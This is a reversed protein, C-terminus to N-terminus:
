ERRLPRAGSESQLDSDEFIAMTKGFPRSESVPNEVNISFGGAAVWVSRELRYKARAQSLTDRLEAPGSFGLIPATVFHLGACQRMRYKEPSDFEDDPCGLYYGLTVDTGIDTVIVSGAPVSGLFDIAEHMASLHHRYREVTFTPEPSLINWAFIAPVAVALIPIVRNRTVSALAIGLGAAMFITLIATHRTDGYPFQRSIAALCAVCLPLVFLMALLPSKDRWLKFLGFFFAVLGARAFWPIRFLLIFQRYTGKLAFALPNEHSQPFAGRLWNSYMEHVDSTSKSLYALYFVVFLSLAGAQGLLWTARIGGSAPSKWLRLLAYVGLGAAYWAVCYETLIALYLFVHFWVMYRISDSDLAKELLFLSISLFLFALTYARAETSLDILTPSFTLLLQASLAAASGALPQLWLMIFWPFLAGAVTPVLRLLWETRGFLLMGHLVLLFLPPHDSRVVNHNFGAWGHWHAALTYYNVEDPNLYFDSAYYLRWFLGCIVVVGGIVRVRKDLSLEARELWTIM